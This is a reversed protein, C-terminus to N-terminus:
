AVRLKGVQRVGRAARGAVAGTPCLEGTAPVSIRHSCDGRRLYVDTWEIPGVLDSGKKTKVSLTMYGYVRKQGSIQAIM